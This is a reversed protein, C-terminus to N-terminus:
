YLSHKSGPLTPSPPSPHPRPVSRPNLYFKKKKKKKTVLVNLKGQSHHTPTDSGASSCVARWQLSSLAYNDDAIRERKKKKLFFGRKKKLTKVLSASDAANWPFSERM